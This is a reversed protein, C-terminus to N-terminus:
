RRARRPRAARPAQRAVAGGSASRDDSARLSTNPPPGEHAHPFLACVRAFITEAARAHLQQYVIAEALAAFTTNATKLRLDFPGISTM